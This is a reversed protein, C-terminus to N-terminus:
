RRQRLWMILLAAPGVLKNRAQSGRRPRHKLIDPQSHPPDNLPEHTSFEDITVATIEYAITLRTPGSVCAFISELL